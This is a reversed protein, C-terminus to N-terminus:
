RLPRNLIRALTARARNTLGSKEGRKSSAQFPPAEAGGFDRSGCEIRGWRARSAAALQAPHPVEFYDPRGQSPPALSAASFSTWATMRLAAFSRARLMKLAIRSEEDGSSRLIVAWELKDAAQLAGGKWLRPSFDPNIVSGSDKRRKLAMQKSNRKQRSGRPRPQVYILGAQLSASPTGLRGIAAGAM